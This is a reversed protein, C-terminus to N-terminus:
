GRYINRLTRQRLVKLIVTDLKDYWLSIRSRVHNVQQLVTESTSEADRPPGRLHKLHALRAFVARGLEQLVPLRMLPDSLKSRANWGTLCKYSAARPATAYNGALCEFIRPEALSNCHTFQLTNIAAYRYLISSSTGRGHAVMVTIWERLRSTTSRGGIQCNEARM